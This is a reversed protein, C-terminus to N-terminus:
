VRVYGFAALKVLPGGQSWPQQPELTRRSSYPDLSMPSYRYPNRTAWYPQPRRRPKAHSVEPNSAALVLPRSSAHHFNGVQRHPALAVRSPATKRTIMNKPAVAFARKVLSQLPDATLLINYPNVNQHCYGHQHLYKLGIM